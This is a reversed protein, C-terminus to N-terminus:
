LLQHQRTGPLLYWIRCGVTEKQTGAVGAKVPSSFSFAHFSPTSQLSCPVQYFIGGSHTWEYLNRSCNREEVQTRQVYVYVFKLFFMM